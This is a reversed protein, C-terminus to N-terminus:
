ADDGGFAEAATRLAAVVSPPPREWRTGAKDISAYDLCSACLKYKGLVGVESEPKRCHGCKRSRDVMIEIRRHTTWM